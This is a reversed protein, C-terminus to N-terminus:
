PGGVLGGRGGHPPGRWEGVRLGAISIPGIRARRLREVEIGAVEMIRRVLHHIGEHVTITLIVGDASERLLRVEEPVIRRGDIVIGSRIRSLQQPSPRSRTLVHYEKALGYRPHMVRNAVEGDNTFLLLGETDRDLRGVPVLRPEAPLLEMVTRRDREDSTTTIFGSPKNLLVYRFPQRRVPKGDVQIRARRPDVRTGLQTVVRGDVTVRGSQILEEAKRRSAVGAAALVRQLREGRQPNPNVKPMM